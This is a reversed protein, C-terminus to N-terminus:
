SCEIFQLLVNRNDVYLNHMCNRERSWEWVCMLWASSFDVIRLLIEAQWSVIRGHCPKDFLFCSLDCPLNTSGISSCWLWWADLKERCYWYLHWESLNCSFLFDDDNSICEQHVVLHKCLFIYTLPNARLSVSYIMVRIVSIPTRWSFALTQVFRRARM